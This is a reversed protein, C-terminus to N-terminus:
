RKRAVPHYRRDLQEGERRLNRELEPTIPGAAAGITRISATLAVSPKSEAYDADVTSLRSDPEGLQLHTTMTELSLVHSGDAEIRESTYYLEECALAPAKWSTFIYKDLRTEIVVVRQGDMTDFRLFRENSASPQGDDDYGIGKSRCDPPVNKLKDALGTADSDSNAPWTTKLKVIEWV